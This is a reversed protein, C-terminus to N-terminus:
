SHFNSIHHSAINTTTTEAQKLLSYDYDLEAMQNSVQLVEPHSGGKNYVM